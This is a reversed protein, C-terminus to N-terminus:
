KRRSRRRERLRKRAQRLLTMLSPRDCELARALERVARTREERRKTQPWLDLARRLTDPTPFKKIYPLAEGFLAKAFMVRGEIPLVQAEDLVHVLMEHRRELSTDAEGFSVLVRRAGEIVARARLRWVPDRLQERAELLMLILTDAIRVDLDGSFDPFDPPIPPKGLSLGARAPQDASERAAKGRLEDKRYTVPPRDKEDPM